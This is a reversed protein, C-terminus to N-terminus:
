KKPRPKWDEHYPASPKIAYTETTIENRNGIKRVEKGKRQVASDHFRASEPRWRPEDKSLWRWMGIDKTDHALGLPDSYVRPKGHAFIGFPELEDLMWNLAGGALDNSDSYGGGVDSHAGPFWLEHVETREPNIARPVLVPRFKDRREDISVAHVIKRIPPYSGMKYRIGRHGDKAEGVPGYAKFQSGPVTDWVGLFNVEAYRTSIGRIEDLGASFIPKRETVAKEWRTKEKVDDRSISYDWIRLVDRKFQSEGAGPDTVLGCHAIIGALARAEHAGRSFGFVLIQDGERHNKSLFEYAALVRPKLGYGFAGGLFKYSSSGVGDSYFCVQAPNEEAAVLEFLRRVNTRSDWENNTGDMFVLLKRPTAPPPIKRQERLAVNPATQIGPSVCGPQLLVTLTLLFGYLWHRNNSPRPNM